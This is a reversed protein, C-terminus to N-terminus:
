KPPPPADILVESLSLIDFGEEGTSSVAWLGSSARPSSPRNITDSPLMAHPFIVWQHSKVMARMKFKKWPSCLRTRVFIELWPQAQRQSLSTDCERQRFSVNKCWDDHDQCSVEKSLHQYKPSKNNNKKWSGVFFLSLFIKKKKEGKHLKNSYNTM